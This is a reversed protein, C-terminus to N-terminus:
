QRRQQLLDARMRGRSGEKDGSISCRGLGAEEAGPLHWAGSIPGPKRDMLGM